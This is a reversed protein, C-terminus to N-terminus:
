PMVGAFKLGGALIVAFASLIVELPISEWVGRASACHAAIANMANM